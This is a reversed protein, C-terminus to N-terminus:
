FVIRTLLTVVTLAGLCITSNLHCAPMVPLLYVILSLDGFTHGFSGLSIVYLLM